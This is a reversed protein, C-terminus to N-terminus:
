NNYWIFKIDNSNISGIYIIRFKIFEKINFVAKQSYTNIPKNWFGFGFWTRIKVPNMIIINDKLDPNVINTYPTYKIDSPLIDSMALKTLYLGTSGFLIVGIFIFSVIIVYFYNEIFGKINVKKETNNGKKDEIASDSM